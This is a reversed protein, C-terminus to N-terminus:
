IQEPAGICRYQGSRLAAIYEAATTIPTDTLIGGGAIDEVRHADSGSTILLHHQKALALADASHNDHRPNTNYVEFGDVDEPMPTCKGDRLPHAQIVTVGHEHAFPLFKHIDMSFTDRCALLFAEDIGYLLYDNISGDFRIEASLLVHMGLQRGTEEAARFGRLYRDVAAEWPLDGFRALSKRTFHDSVFVTTYGAGHCRTIIEEACLKGCSSSEATHLHTETKYMM